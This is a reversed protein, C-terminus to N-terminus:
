AVHVLGPAGETLQVQRGFLLDHVLQHVIRWGARGEVLGKIILHWGTFLQDIFAMCRLKRFIGFLRGAVLPKIIHIIRILHIFGFSTALLFQIFEIIVVTRRQYFL